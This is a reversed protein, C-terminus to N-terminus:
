DGCQLNALLFNLIESCREKDTIYVYGLLAELATADNYAPTKRRNGKVSGSNRGRVVVQLENPTLAFKETLLALLKAQHEARVLSVVQEQLDSTRRTPWVMQSRVFLEFVVDGVYAWATPGMQTVDCGRVPSLLQELSLTTSASTTAVAPNTTAVESVTVNPPLPAHIHSDANCWLIMRSQPNLSRTQLAKCSSLALILLAVSSSRHLIM